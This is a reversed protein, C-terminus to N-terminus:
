EVEARIREWFASMEADLAADERARRDAEIPRMVAWVAEDRPSGLAEADRAAALAPENRAGRFRYTTHASGAPAGPSMCFGIRDGYYVVRQSFDDPELVDGADLHVALEAPIEFYFEAGRKTEHYGPLIGTYVSETAVTAPAAHAVVGGSAAILVAVVLGLSGRRADRGLMTETMSIGEHGM